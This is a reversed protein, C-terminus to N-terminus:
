RLVIRHAARNGTQILYVGAAPMRFTHTGATCQHTALLRGIADFIRIQEGFAGQVTIDHDHTTIAINDEVTTITVNDVEFSATLSIDSDVLIHRPNEASGDSWQTFHYGSVPIAAIEVVTSDSYHGSGVAIGQSPQASTVTLQHYELPTWVTDHILREVITTDYFTVTDTVFTTDNMVLTDFVFATDRVFVTDNTVLTDFVYTTDHATLTDHMVVTDYATLQTFYATYNRNATVTVPRVLATSNDSWRVFGYGQRAVAALTAEAGSPFSGGGTAHGMTTDASAVTVTYYNPSTKTIALDDILVGHGNPSNHMRFAVHISEGAYASLDLTRLTYGTTGPTTQFLAMRTFDDPHNGTTSVYVSYHGSLHTGDAARDHWAMRYYYGSDLHMRPAIVWNDTPRSSSAGGHSVSAFSRTGEHALSSDNASFGWCHSDGDRDVIRWCSLDDAVEFGMTYPFSSNDCTHVEVLLTDHLQVGAYTAELMVAYDGASDWVATVSTGSTTDVAAGTVTWNFTAPYPCSVSYTAPIDVGVSVPGTLDYPTVMLNSLIAKIMWSGSVNGHSATLLSRWRNEAPRWVMCSGTDGTYNTMSAPYRATNNHFTIWLPLSDNLTVPFPLHIIQWSYAATSTFTKTFQCLRTSDYTLGTASDCIDEGQFVQVEYAGATDVYLMVDTLYQRHQHMAPPLRIGWWINRQSGIYLTATDDGCYSVTDEYVPPASFVGQVMFSYNWSTVPSLSSGFLRSHNNGSYYTLAAPRYIGTCSFAIWLSQNGTVTVHSTLPVSLWQDIQGPSVSFSQTHVMNTPSSSGSYVTLTYAGPEIAYFRASTLDHGPTLVSQPLRIGWLTTGSTNGGRALYTGCAYGLTDGRLPEFVATFSYNGGNAYFYRPTYKYGDSWGTFRKGTAATATLCVLTGNVGSFTGGGSVSGYSSNNASASVVTNSGFAGNPEIGILITNRLNFSHFSTSGPFDLHGVAYYGDSNGSWGWNFHFLGASDYGDCLFTHGSVSDYGDYMVPRGNDLEHRLLAYWASDSVDAKRVTHLSSKYKFYYRLANEASPQSVQGSGHTYAGSGGSTATGYDMEVAVGVDHLLSAVAYVEAASSSADLQSPMTTWSYGSDFRASMSGYSSHVYTHGGYGTDPHSWYRMLQGMATAVCGTVTRVGEVSDYPCLSNYYTQQDWTTSILPSVSTNYPNTPMSGALLRQWQQGVPSSAPSVTIGNYESNQRCFRIQEEYSNLWQRLNAPMGETAFVSTASYGLIPTVCDNGSVIVFGRGDSGAFVYFESYGTQATIDTLSKGKIGNAKLFNLAAQKAKGADVPSAEVQVTAALTVWVILSLLKIRM